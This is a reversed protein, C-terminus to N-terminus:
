LLALEPEAPARLTLSGNLHGIFAMPELLETLTGAQRHETDLVAIEIDEVEVNERSFPLARQHEDLM